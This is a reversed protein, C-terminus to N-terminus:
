SNMFFFFFLNSVYPHQPVPAQSSPYPTGGGTIMFDYPSNDPGKSRWFCFIKSLLSEGKRPKIRLEDKPSPM